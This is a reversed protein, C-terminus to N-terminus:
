DGDIVKGRKRKIMKGSHMEKVHYIHWPRDKRRRESGRNEMLVHITKVSM